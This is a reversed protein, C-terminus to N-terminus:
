GRLILLAPGTPPGTLGAFPAGVTPGTRGTGSTAAVGAGPGAIAGAGSAGGAGAQGGLWTELIGSVENVWPMTVASGNTLVVVTNKQVASIEDILAKNKRKKKSVGSAIM